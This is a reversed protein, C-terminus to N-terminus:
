APPAHDSLDASRRDAGGCNTGQLLRRLKGCHERSIFYGHGYSDSKIRVAHVSLSRNLRCVRQDINRIDSPQDAEPLNGYIASYLYERSIVKGDARLLLGLFRWNMKSVRFLKPEELKMGLLEELEENRERLRVITAQLNKIQLDNMDISCDLGDGAVRTQVM